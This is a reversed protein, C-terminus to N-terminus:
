KTRCSMELVRFDTWITVTPLNGLPPALTKATPHLILLSPIVTVLCQVITLNPTRLRTSSIQELLSRRDPQRTVRTM